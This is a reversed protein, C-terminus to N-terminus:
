AAASVPSTDPKRTPIRDVIGVRESQLNLEATGSCLPKPLRELRLRERPSKGVVLLLLLLSRAQESHHITDARGIAYNLDADVIWKTATIPGNRFSLHALSSGTSTVVVKPASSIVAGKIQHCKPRTLQIDNILLLRIKGSIGSTIANPPM